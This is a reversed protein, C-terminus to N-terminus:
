TSFICISRYVWLMPAITIQHSQAFRLMCKPHIGNISSHSHCTYCLSTFFLQLTSILSPTSDSATSPLPFFFNPPRFFISIAFCYSMRVSIIVRHFQTCELHGSSSLAPISHTPMTAPAPDLTRRYALGSTMWTYQLGRLHYSLNRM